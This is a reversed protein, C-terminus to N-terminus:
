VHAYESVKSLAVNNGPGTVQRAEERAQRAQDGVKLRFAAEHQPAIHVYKHATLQNIGDNSPRQSAASSVVSITSSRGQAAAVAFLCTHHLRHNCGPLRNNGM